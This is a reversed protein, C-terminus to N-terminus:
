IQLLEQEKREGMGDIDAIMEDTIEQVKKESLKREDESLTHEEFARKFDRMAEHRVQRVMVRGAELKTRALKVYEQRREESLPPISIRVIEGDIVPSLGINAELLGRQVEEIISPDYPAIVLTRADMATITALERVKLKQTGDYAAIVINEVLAPTARGSRISSLDGRTVDCAKRMQDRTSNLLNDIM